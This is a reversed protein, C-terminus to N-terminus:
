EPFLRRVTKEFDSRAPDITEGAQEVLARVLEARKVLKGTKERIALTVRDLYIVNRNYLCVTVKQYAEAAKPRGKIRPAPKLDLGPKSVTSQFIDRAKKGTAM